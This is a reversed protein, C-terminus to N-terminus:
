HRKVQCAAQTTVGAFSPWLPPDTACASFPAFPLQLLLAVWDVSSLTCYPTNCHTCQTGFIGPVWSPAGVKLASFDTEETIPIAAACKAGGEYEKIFKHLPAQKMEGALPLLMNFMVDKPAGEMKMEGRYVEMTAPDGNCIAFLIPLSQPKAGSPHLFSLVEPAATTSTVQAFAIQVLSADFFFSFIQVVDVKLPKCRRPM